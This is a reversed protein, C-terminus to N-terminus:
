RKKPCGIFSSKWNRWTQNIKIGLAFVMLEFKPTTLISDKDVQMVDPYGTSTSYWYYIFTCWIDVLSKEGYFVQLQSTQKFIMVIFFQNTILDWEIQYCKQTISCKMYVTVKFTRPKELFTPCFDHSRPIETLYQFCNKDAEKCNM